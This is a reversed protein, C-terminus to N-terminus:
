SNLKWISFNLSTAYMLWLIYSLMLYGSFPRIKLFLWGTWVALVLMVLIISMSMLLNHLYFFSFSWAINLFLQLGFLILATSKLSGGDTEWVLFLAFGMMLYLGFWVPGFLWNPPTFGPKELSSYWPQLSTRTFIGSVIGTLQCSCLSVILKVAKSEIM